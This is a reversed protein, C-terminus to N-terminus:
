EETITIRIGHNKAMKEYLGDITEKDHNLAEEVSTLADEVGQRYGETLSKKGSFYLAVLLFAGFFGATTYDIMIEREIKEITYGFM